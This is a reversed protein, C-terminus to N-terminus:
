LTPRGPRGCPRFFASWWHGLLAFASRLPCGPRHTPRCLTLSGIFSGYLRRLFMRSVRLPSRLRSAAHYPALPARPKDFSVRGVFRRNKDEILFFPLCIAHIIQVLIQLRPRWISQLMPSHSSEAGHMLGRRPNLTSAHKSRAYDKLRGSNLLAKLSPSGSPIGACTSGSCMRLSLRRILPRALMGSSESDRLRQM